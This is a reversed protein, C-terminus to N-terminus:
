QSVRVFYERSSPLMESSLWYTNKDLFNVTVKTVGAHPHKYQIKASKDDCLLVKYPYVSEEFTFDSEENGIKVKIPPLGHEHAETGNYTVKMYGLMQNLLEAQKTKLQAYRNNYNMSTEKSSQWTGVLAPCSLVNNSLFLALLSSLVRM